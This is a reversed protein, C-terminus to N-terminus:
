GVGWKGSKKPQKSLVTARGQTGDKLKYEILMKPKPRGTNRPTDTLNTDTNGSAIDNDETLDVDDDDMASVSESGTVNENTVEQNDFSVRNNDDAVNDGHDDGSFGDGDVANNDFLQENEVGAGNDANENTVVSDQLDRDEDTSSDDNTRSLSLGPSEKLRVQTSSSNKLASIAKMLHCPHCRYYGTGHRVLVIKGEQGIVKAPGRWGKTNKRKYFVKEGNHYEEDSSTRIKHRLARRIRESSEAKVYNERASHLAELNRRIIESSTTANMAPPLDSVVSPLNTNFGFM